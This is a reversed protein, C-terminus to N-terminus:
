ENNKLWSIIKKAQNVADKLNDRAAKIFKLGNEVMSHAEEDKEPTMSSFTFKAQDLDSKANALDSKLTNLYGEVESIDKGAQKFENIVSELQSSVSELKSVANNLRAVVFLGKDRPLVVMFIRFDVFISKIESKLAEIDTEADIKAKLANLNDINSQLDSILSNRDADSIRKAKKLRNIGVNLVKIRVQILNNGKKCLAELRAQEGGVAITLQKASPPKAAQGLSPLLLCILFSLIILMAGLLKTKSKLNM